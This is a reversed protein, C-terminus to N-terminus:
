VTKGTTGAERERLLAIWNKCMVQVKPVVNAVTAKGLEDMTPRLARNVLLKAAPIAIPTLLGLHSALFIALVREVAETGQSAAQDLTQQIIDRDAKDDGTDGCILGQASREIRRYLRRGVDTVDSVSLEQFVSENYPLEAANAYQPQTRAVEARTGLEYYLSELNDKPTTASAVSEHRWDAMPSGTAAKASASAAAATGAGVAAVAAPTPPQPRFIAVSFQLQNEVEPSLVADAWHLQGLQKDALRKALMHDFVGTPEAGLARQLQKVLEGKSGQRLRALQQKIAAANSLQNTKRMHSAIAAEMGTLLVYDFKRGHDGSGPKTLGLTERFTKWEGSHQDTGKPCGGSVTQCGWSSFEASPHNFSPHIDDYPSCPDWNDRIDYILDTKTRLVAKPAAEILCGFRERHTGVFYSYAGCPMMNSAQGGAAYGYVAARCPVTNGIFGSLRGTSLDYSGIVCRFHQHDPRADRLTLAPRDLQRQVVRPDDHGMVLQCGRLAFIIRQETRNPQFSNAGILLELDAATFEFTTGKLTRDVIHRYDPADDDSAAWRVGDWAASENTRESEPRPTDSDFEDGWRAGDGAAQAVSELRDRTTMAVPAPAAAQPVPPKAREALGAEFLRAEAERRKILGTLTTGEWRRKMSRFEAPIRKVDGSILHDRINRFEQRDGPQRDTMSAGCNYVLSFLAGFCHQHLGESKRFAGLVRRGYEPMNRRRFVDMAADWPVIIDRFRPALRQASGHSVGCCETLRDIQSAPIEGQWDRHLGASDVYGIDYGIGVTVGSAGGPWLPWAYAHEYQRRSGIEQVIVLDRAQDSILAVIEADTLHASAAQVNAEFDPNSEFKDEDRYERVAELEADSLRAVFRLERSLDGESM